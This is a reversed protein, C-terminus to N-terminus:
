RLESGTVAEALAARDAKGTTEQVISVSLRKELWHQIVSWITTLALYWLAVAGFYEAPLFTESYHVQADAFMEYVGIFFLLSTSKLM